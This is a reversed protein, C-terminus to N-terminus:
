AQGDNNNEQKLVQSTIQSNGQSGASSELLSGLLRFLFNEEHGEIICLTRRRLM